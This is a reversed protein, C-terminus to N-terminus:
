GDSRRGDSSIRSQSQSKQAGVKGGIAIM